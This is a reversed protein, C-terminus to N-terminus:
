QYQSGQFFSVLSISNVKDDPVTNRKADTEKIDKEWAYLNKLEERIRNANQMIQAQTELDSM